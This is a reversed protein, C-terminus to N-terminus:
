TAAGVTLTAQLDLISNADLKNHVSDFKKFGSAEVVVSYLGAPISNFIYYGSENTSGQQQVGTAENRLTVKAKPIVAGSPDKAFGTISGNDSQAFAVSVLLVLMAVCSVWKFKLV